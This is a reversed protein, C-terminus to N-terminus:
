TSAWASAGVGFRGDAGHGRLAQRSVAGAGTPSPTPSPQPQVYQALQNINIENFWINNSRDIILGDDPYAGLTLQILQVVTKTIPDFEGLQSTLADDFWIKGQGDVQIGEVLVGTCPTPTTNPTPTPCMSATVRYEKHSQNIPSYMGIMGASGESYWIDGNQDIDLMRPYNTKSVVHEIIAGPKLTGYRAPKFVAIKHTGSEAFWIKGQKDITMGYPESNATPIANEIIQHSFINYYGIKNATYETFWINGFHDIVLDMPAANATPATYTTWQNGKPVLEGILNHTPDTFWVHSKVDVRLFAPNLQGTKPIFDKEGSSPNALNYRGILGPPPSTCVPSPICGPEAVWVYGNRFDFAMGWGGLTTAYQNVGTTGAHAQSFLMVWAMVISGITAVLTLAVRIVLGIQRHRMRVMGPKRLKKM